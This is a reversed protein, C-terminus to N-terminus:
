DTNSVHGKGNEQKATKQGASIISLLEEDTLYKADDYKGSNNPEPGEVLAIRDHAERLLGFYIRRDRASGTMADKMLMKIAVNNKSIRKRQGNENITMFSESERILERDFDRCKKPRGGPNGSSGKQFQTNKPPKGYGVEYDGTTKDNNM